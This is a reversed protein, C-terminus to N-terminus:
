RIEEAVYNRERMMDVLEGSRQPAKKSPAAPATEGGAAHVNTQAVSQAVQQAVRQEAATFVSALRQAKAFLEAPSESEMLAQMVIPDSAPLGLREVVKHVVQMKDVREQAAVEARSRNSEQTRLLQNEAELQEIRRAEKAQEQEEPSMLELTRAFLAEERKRAQDAILGLAVDRRGIQTELDQIRQQIRLAEDSESGAPAEAQAPTEQQPPTVGETAVQESAPQNVNQGDETDSITVPPETTMQEVLSADTGAQFESKGIYAFLDGSQESGESTQENDSM